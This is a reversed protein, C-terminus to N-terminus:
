WWAGTVGTNRLNRGVSIAAKDFILRGHIVGESFSMTRWMYWLRFFFGESIASDKWRSLDVMARMRKMGRFIFFAPRGL